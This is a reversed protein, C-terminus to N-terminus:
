RKRDDLHGHGSECPSPNSLQLGVQQRTSVRQFASVTEKFAVLAAVKLSAQEPQSSRIFNHSHGANKQDIVAFSFPNPQFFGYNFAPNEQRIITLGRWAAIRAFVSM